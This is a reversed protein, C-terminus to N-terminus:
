YIKTLNYNITKTIENIVEDIIENTTDPYNMFIHKKENRTESM